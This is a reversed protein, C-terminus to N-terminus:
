RRGALGLKRAIRSRGLALWPGPDDSRWIADVARWGAGSRPVVAGSAVAGPDRWGHRHVPQAAPLPRRMQDAYQVAPLNIGNLTALESQYDTRCATPEIMSFAGTQAHRKFELSGMGQFRAAAFFAQTDAALRAHAEPAPACGATGGVRPPWSATKYGTYAALMDGNAGFYALCFFVSGDDGPVYEQAVLEGAAALMDPIMPAAADASEFVYAKKFRAQYAAVHESPKVILPPTLTQLLPLDDASRLTVTRPVALGAQLAIPMFRDKNVMAEVIDRDPMAIRYGPIRDRNVAVTAVSDERTLFLVPDHDRTARYAALADVLGEGALPAKTKTAHRTASFPGMADDFAHVRIGAAALSRVVGLGNLGLGVVLASGSM